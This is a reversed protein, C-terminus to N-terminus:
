LSFMVLWLWSWGRCGMCSVGDRRHICPWTYEQYLRLHTQYIAYMTLISPKKQFMIQLPRFQFMIM